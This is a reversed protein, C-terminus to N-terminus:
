CAVLLLGDALQFVVVLHRTIGFQPLIVFAYQDPEDLVVVREGMGQFWPDVHISKAILRAGEKFHVDPNACYVGDLQLAYSQAIDKAKSVLPGSNLQEWGPLVAGTSLSVSAFAYFSFFAFLVALYWKVRM